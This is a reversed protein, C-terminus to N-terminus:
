VTGGAGDSVIDREALRHSGDDFGDGIATEFATDDGDFVADLAADGLREVRECVTVDRDNALNNRRNPV